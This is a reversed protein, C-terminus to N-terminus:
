LLDLKKLTRIARHVTAQKIELQESMDEVQACIDKVSIDPQNVQQMAIAHNIWLWVSIVYVSRIETQALLLETDQLWISVPRYAVEDWDIATIHKFKDTTMNLRNCKAELPNTM